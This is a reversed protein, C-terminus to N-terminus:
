SFPCSIQSHCLIFYHSSDRLATLAQPTPLSDSKCSTLPRSASSDRASLQLHLMGGVIPCEVIISCLLCPSSSQTWFDSSMNKKWRPNFDPKWEIRCKRSFSLGSMPHWLQFIRGLSTSLVFLVQSTRLIHCNSERWLVWLPIGGLGYIKLQM